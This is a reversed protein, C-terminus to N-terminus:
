YRIVLGDPLDDTPISGKFEWTELDLIMVKDANSTAVFLDRKDRHFTIGVPIPTKNLLDYLWAPDSKFDIRQKQEYTKHDFVQISNGKANVVFADNTIPDFKIRIPFEDTSIIKKVEFSRLDVVSVQNLDRQTVWLEDATQNLEIGEVNGPMPLKRTISDSALDVELVM